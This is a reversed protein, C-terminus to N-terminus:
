STKTEWEGEECLEKRVPYSLEEEVQVETATRLNLEPLTDKSLATDVSKSNAEPCQGGTAKRRPLRIRIKNGPPGIKRAIITDKSAEAAQNKSAPIEKDCLMRGPIAAASTSSSSSPYIDGRSRSM